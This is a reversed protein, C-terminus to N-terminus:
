DMVDEDSEEELNFRLGRLIEEVPSLEPNSCWICVNGLYVWIDYSEGPSNIDYILEEEFFYMDNHVKRILQTEKNVAYIYLKPM